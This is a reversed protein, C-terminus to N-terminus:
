VENGEFRKKCKLKGPLVNSFFSVFDVMRGMAFTFYKAKEFLKGIFLKNEVM